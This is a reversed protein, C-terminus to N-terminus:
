YNTGNFDMSNTDARYIPPVIDMVQEAAGMTYQSVHATKRSGLIGPTLSYYLYPMLRSARPFREAFKPSVEGFIRGSPVINKIRRKLVFYCKGNVTLVAANRQTFSFNEAYEDSIYPMSKLFDDTLGRYFRLYYEALVWGAARNVPHAMKGPFGYIRANPYHKGLEDYLSYLMDLVYGGKRVSPMTAFDCMQFAIRGDLDNRWAGWTAIPKDERYVVIIFSKGYCNAEFKRRMYDLDFHDVFVTNCVDCYDQATKDTIEGSWEIALKEGREESLTIIM